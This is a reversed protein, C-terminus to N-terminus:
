HKGVIDKWNDWIKNNAVQTDQAFYKLQRMNEETPQVMVINKNWQLAFVYVPNSIPEGNFYLCIHKIYPGNGRLVQCVVGTLNYRRCKKMTLGFRSKVTIDQETVIAYSSDLMIIIFVGIAVMCSVAAFAGFVANYLILSLVFFTIAFVIFATLVSYCVINVKVGGNIWIKNSLAHENDKGM